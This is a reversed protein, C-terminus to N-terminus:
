AVIEMRLGHRDRCACGTPLVREREATLRRATVLLVAADIIDDDAVEVEVNSRKLTRREAKPDFCVGHDALIRLRETRGERSSKKFDLSTSKLECFTMEPHGERVGSQREASMLLDVERIKGLIAFSQTSLRKGCAKENLDCASRYELWGALSARCPAPFVSSRRPGIAKRAEKDCQRPGDEPLGIPIDIVIRCGGRAALAFLEQLDPVVEFCVEWGVVDSSAVVCGDKCGDVGVLRVNSLSGIPGPAWRRSQPTSSTKRGDSEEASKSRKSRDAIPNFRMMVM